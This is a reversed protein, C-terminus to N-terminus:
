AKEVPEARGEEIALLDGWVSREGDREILEKFRAIREHRAAARAQKRFAERRALTDPKM